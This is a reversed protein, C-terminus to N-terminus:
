SQQLIEKVQDTNEDLWQYLDDRTETDTFDWKLGGFFISDDLIFLIQQLKDETIEIGFPFIEAAQVMEEIFSLDGDHDIYTQKMARNRIQENEAQQEAAIQLFAKRALLQQESIEVPTGPLFQSKGSGTTGIVITHGNREEDHNTDYVIPNTM